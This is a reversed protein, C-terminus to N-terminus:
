SFLPWYYSGELPKYMLQDNRKGIERAPIGAVIAYPSVDKTVVAGACIVAGTGIHCGPLVVANIGIWVYDDIVVSKKVYDFYSSNLNHSATVVSVKHSISVRNGIFLGGRADLFCYRNIHTNEGLRLYRPDLIYTGMDIRSEKGIKAFCLRLYWKRLFWCPLYTVIRNLIFDVFFYFCSLLFKKLYPTRNICGQLISLFLKIFFLTNKKGNNEILSRIYKNKLPKNSVGDKEYEMITIDHYVFHVKSKYMSYICYYDLGYSYIGKKSLDFKFKKHLTTRVFSSGHRYDPPLSQNVNWHAKIYKKGQSSVEISDGFIVGIDDNNGNSFLRTLVNNSAYVDGCNLIGIWEGNALDIGKNIADYIGNDKESVWYAIKDVYKKIIDVTGDTSGGDIVIYEINHYDQNIVSLITEEIKSVINYSVTIITILPNNNM